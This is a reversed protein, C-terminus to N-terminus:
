QVVKGHRSVERDWKDLLKFFSIIKSLDGRDISFEKQTAAEIQAANLLGRNEPIPGFVAPRSIEIHEVESRAGLEARSKELESAPRSARQSLSERRLGFSEAPNVLLSAGVPCVKATGRRSFTGQKLQGM